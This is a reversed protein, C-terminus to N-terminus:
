ASKEIPPQQLMDDIILWLHEMHYLMILDAIAPLAFVAKHSIIQGLQNQTHSSILKIILPQLNDNPFLTL